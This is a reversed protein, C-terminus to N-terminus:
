EPPFRMLIYSNAEYHLWQWRDNSDVCRYDSHIVGLTPSFPFRAPFSAQVLEAQDPGFRTHAAQLPPQNTPQNRRSPLFTLGLVRVSGLM